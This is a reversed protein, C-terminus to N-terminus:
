CSDVAHGAHQFSQKTFLIPWIAARRSVTFSRSPERSGTRGSRQLISGNTHRSKTNRTLFQAHCTYAYEESWVTFM